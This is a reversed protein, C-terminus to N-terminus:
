DFISSRQAYDTAVSARPVEIPVPQIDFPINGFSNPSPAQVGRGPINVPSAGYSKLINHVGPDIEIKGDPRKTGVSAFSGVAVISEHRDHFEYAEVGRNRLATTLSHAKVAAAALQSAPADTHELQAIQRTEMTVKGRFTAVKVSYKGPCKLLSFKVDRNMEQVLPDLGKPAFFSAPILPNRTVFAARMPGMSRTKRDPSVRRQVERWIGLSQNTVKRKTLDLATPHMNKIKTLATKVAPDYVSKFNGIMVAFQDYETDRRHRMVQQTGDERLGLGAMKGTFDFHQKTIYAEM